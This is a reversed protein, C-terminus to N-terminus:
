PAAGFVLPLFIRNSETTFSWTPGASQTEGDRAIVYWYYTVGRQLPGPDATPLQLGSILLPPTPSAGFYLDYTITDCNLDTSAAWSLTTTIPVNIAGLTPFPLSPLSAPDNSVELNVQRTIKGTFGDNFEAINVLSTGLSLCEDVSLSYTITVPQTEDVEGQWFIQGNDFVPIGQTATLYGTWTMNATITDTVLVLSTNVLTNVNLQYQVVDTPVIHSQSVTKESGALNPLLAFNLTQSQDVEVQREAPYYAFASVRITYTAPCVNIAFGGSLPDSSTSQSSGIFDISAELPDGTVADTVTGSVTVLAEPCLYFDTTTLAGTTVTVDATQSQFGAASASLTFSGESIVRHYDGVQPDTRATNAPPDGYNTVTVAADLPANNRMDLVKGGLGTLARQMWWVMADRNHEWFTPMLEFPPMKTDSIELTVHHEGRWLYAWDQMGGYIEYWQWGRTMGYPWGGEWIDINRSTYGYGFDWFLQDDPALESGYVADWPYNLVQAGGHYNAGMSFRHAYGFNMFAQTEPERGNPTDNPDTIRDPFDRNLDEWHANWRQGLVYGDPNYIPCIWTEMNDVIDTMVPDTGYGSALLEALRMTMEVGTTEDGHHNATYKFEPENEELNLNDTIKMCYLNRGQVSNGIDILDVIDPHATELDLMRDAYDDFTPWADPAGSGPGYALFSRYGENPIPVPTLGSQVLAASQTPNIYVTVISPEFVGSEDFAGDAPRIGEFEIKLRNLTQAEEPTAIYVQAPYVDTGPYPEPPVPPPLPSGADRASSALRPILAITLVTILLIIPIRL